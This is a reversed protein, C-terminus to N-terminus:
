GFPGNAARARAQRTARHDAHRDDRHHDGSTLRAYDIQASRDVRRHIARRNTSAAYRTASRGHIATARTPDAPGIM